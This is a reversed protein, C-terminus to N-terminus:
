LLGQKTLGLDYSLQGSVKVLTGCGSRNRYSKLQLVNILNFVDFIAYYVLERLVKKGSLRGLDIQLNARWVAQYM